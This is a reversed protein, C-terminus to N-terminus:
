SANGSALRCAKMLLENNIALNQSARVAAHNTNISLSMKIGGQIIKIGLTM